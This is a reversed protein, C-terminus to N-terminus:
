KLTGIKRIEVHGNINKLIQLQRILSTIKHVNQLHQSLRKLPKKSKCSTM